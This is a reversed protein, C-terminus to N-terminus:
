SILWERGPQSGGQPPNARLPSELVSYLPAATSVPPSIDGLVLWPIHSIPFHLPSTAAALLPLLFAGAGSPSPLELLLM